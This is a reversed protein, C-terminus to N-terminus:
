QVGRLPREADGGALDRSVFSWVLNEAVRRRYAATSRQDDIPRVAGAVARRVGAEMAALGEVAAGELMEEAARVRLVTPGVAGLSIRPRVVRGGERDAFAALSVKTLANARRTGVKRWSWAAPEWLPIHVATLIEDAALSTTGPGTVLEEVPLSRTGRLSALTVRAEFAYLFPLTDAAPSANCLNGALTAANRLGPAGISLVAERLAPHLRPHEALESLTVAAGVELEGDCVGIGALEGVRDLFLVPATFAPLAGAGRRLRVMLDTGGCFPVAGREARATLADSLRLPRLAESV